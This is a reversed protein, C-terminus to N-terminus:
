SRLDAARDTRLEAVVAYHDSAMVGDVPETGALRVSRVSGLPKPRPWSVLVYDLRRNPYSADALYPNAGHWTHGADAGGAVEWADTFALGPVPVPAAGTLMRVEDSHPVANLDGTLVAPFGDAPDPRYADVLRCLATAQAQRTASGDFAWDLHTTVFLVPGFPTAVRAVVAQRHSAGGAADPLVVHDHWEFPWRSLVANTFALGNRYRLEGHAVHLGLRAGLAEAQNIGGEEAWVEQLGILDASQEALVAAIADQRAQWPGFRWWLNWTMVRLM